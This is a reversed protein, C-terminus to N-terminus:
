NYLGYSEFDQKLNSGNRQMSGALLQHTGLDEKSLAISSHTLEVSGRLVNSNSQAMINDRMKGDPTKLSFDSKELISSALNKKRYEHNPLGALNLL